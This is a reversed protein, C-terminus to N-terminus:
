KTPSGGSTPSAPVMVSTKTGGGEVYTTVKGDRINETRLQTEVVRAAV